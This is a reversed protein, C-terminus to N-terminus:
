FFIKKLISANQLSAIEETLSSVKDKYQSLTNQYENIKNKYEDIMNEYENIKNEYESVTTEKKNIKSKYESILNETENIKDEYNSIKNKYEPTVDEYKSIEKKLTSIKNDKETALNKLTNIENSLSIFEKEKKITINELDDIKNQKVDLDKKLYNLNETLSKKEKEFETYKQNLSKLMNQSCLHKSKEQSLISNLHNILQDKQSLKKQYFSLRQKLNLMYKEMYVSYNDPIDSQLETNKVNSTLTNLVNPLIKFTTTNQMYIENNICNHTSSFENYLSKFIIPSTNIIERHPPTNFTLGNNNSFCSYIWNGCIWSCWIINNLLTLSCSTINNSEHIKTYKLDSLYGSADVLINSIGNSKIYLTHLTNQLSTLSFDIYPSVNKDVTYFKSWTNNKFNFIKYGLEYKNILKQYLIYLDNNDSCCITFQNIHRVNTTDIINPTSLNLDDDITQHFLTRINNKTNLIGYFIHLKDNNYITKLYVDNVVSTKKKLIEHKTWTTGNYVNLNINGSSDQYLVCIKDDHILVVSFNNSCENVLINYNSWKTNELTKYIIGFSKKYSFQWITGDSQKLTYFNRDNLLM